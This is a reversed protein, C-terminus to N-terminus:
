QIRLKQGAWKILLYAAAAEYSKNNDPHWQLMKNEYAKKPDNNIDEIGLIQKPTAYSENGVVAAYTALPVDPRGDKPKDAIISLYPMGMNDVTIMAKLMCFVNSYKKLRTLNGKTDRYKDLGITNDSHMSVNFLGKITNIRICGFCGINFFNPRASNDSANCTENMNVEAYYATGDGRISYVTVVEPSHNTLEFPVRYVDLGPEMSISLREIFLAASILFVLKLNM